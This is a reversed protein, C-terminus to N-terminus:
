QARCHGRRVERERVAGVVRRTHDRSDYDTCRLSYLTSRNARREVPPVTILRKRVDRTREFCTYASATPSPSPVRMSGSRRGGSHFRHAPQQTATLSPWTMAVAVVDISRTRCTFDIPGAPDLATVWNTGARVSSMTIPTPQSRQNSERDFAPLTHGRVDLGAIILRFTSTPREMAVSPTTDV